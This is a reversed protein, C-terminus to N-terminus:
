SCRESVLPMRRDDERGHSGRAMRGITGYLRNRGQYIQRHFKKANSLEGKGMKWGAMQEIEMM